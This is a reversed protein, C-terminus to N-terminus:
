ETIEVRDLAFEVLMCALKNIQMNSKDAIVKVKSHIDNSVKLTRFCDDSAFPEKKIILKDNM